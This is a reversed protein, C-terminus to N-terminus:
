SAAWRKSLYSSWIVYFSAVFAVLTGVQGFNLSYEDGLIYGQNALVITITWCTNWIIPIVFLIVCASVLFVKEKRDLGQKFDLRIDPNALVDRDRWGSIERGIRYLSAATAILDAAIRLAAGLTLAVRVDVRPHARPIVFCQGSTNEWFRLRHILYASIALRLMGYFAVYAHQLATQRSYKDLVGMATPNFVPITSALNSCILLHFTSITRWQSFTAIIMAIGVATWNNVLDLLV